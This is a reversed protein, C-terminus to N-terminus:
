IIDEKNHWKNFAYEQWDYIKQLREESFFDQSKYWELLDKDNKSSNLGRDMPVVNWIEHEGGQNLPKIHDISRTDKSLVQGSYACRFGFFKMCELWQESTIGNGQNQEKTRRRYNRNFASVQGQPTARYQKNKESIKEKNNERYQKGYEAKKDKNDEYYQKIKDKNDKYYQKAHELLKDKNNERYQKQRELIKDRNNEHYQKQQESIKDKNNERYQKQRERIHDKNNERYYKGYEAIKDKNNERYQKKYELIKDKNNERYQKNKESIKDKNDKYYQKAHESSCKKCISDLEYKGYKKKHFYETTAPLTEGCKTCRKFVYPTNM